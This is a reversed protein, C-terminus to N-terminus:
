GHNEKPGDTAAPLNAPGLLMAANPEGFAGVCLAAALGSVM